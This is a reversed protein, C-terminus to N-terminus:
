SGVILKKHNIIGNAWDDFVVMRCWTGNVFFEDTEQSGKQIQYDFSFLKFMSTYRSGEPLMKIDRSNLPQVSATINFTVPVGRVIVGGVNISKPSRKVQITKKPILSM